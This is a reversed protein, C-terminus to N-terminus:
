VHARGIEENGTLKAIESFCAIGMISKIALNVNKESHGAFDDTCLQNELVVSCRILYNAWKKLLDFNEELQSKDKTVLYYVYSTILMNGCEEIPMHCNPNIVDKKMKYVSKKKHNYLSRFLM